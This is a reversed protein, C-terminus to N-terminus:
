GGAAPPTSVGCRVYFTILGLSSSFLFGFLAPTFFMSIFGLSQLTLLLVNAIKFPWSHDSAVLSPTQMLAYVLGAFTGNIWRRRQTIFARLSLEAEFEFAADFASNNCKGSYLVGLLQRTPTRTVTPTVTPTVTAPDHLNRM